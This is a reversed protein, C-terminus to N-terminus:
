QVLSEHPQSTHIQVHSCNKMDRKRIGRPLAFKAKVSGNRQLIEIHFIHDGYSLIYNLRIM